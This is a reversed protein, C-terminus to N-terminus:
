LRKVGSTKAANGDFTVTHKCEALHGRREILCDTFDCKAKSLRDLAQRIAQAGKLVLNEANFLREICTILVRNKQCGIIARFCGFRRPLLVRDGPKIGLRIRIEIPM